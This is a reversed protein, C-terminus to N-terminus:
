QKSAEQLLGSLIGMEFTSDYLEELNNHKFKFGEQILKASSFGIKSSRPVGDLSRAMM